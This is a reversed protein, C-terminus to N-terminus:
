ASSVPHSKIKPRKIEKHDLAFELRDPIFLMWKSRQQYVLQMLIKFEQGGQVSHVFVVVLVLPISHVVMEALLLFVGGLLVYFSFVGTM